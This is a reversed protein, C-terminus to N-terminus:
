LTLRNDPIRTELGIKFCLLEERSIVMKSQGSEIMMDFLIPALQEVANNDLTKKLHARQQALNELAEYGLIHNKQFSSQILYITDNIEQETKADFKTNLLDSLRGDLYGEAKLQGIAMMRNLDNELDEVSTDEYDQEPDNLENPNNKLFNKIEEHDKRMIALKDAFPEKELNDIQFTIEHTGFTIARGENKDPYLRYSTGSIGLPISKFVHEEPTGTYSNFSFSVMIVGKKNM